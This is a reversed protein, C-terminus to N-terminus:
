NSIIQLIILEDKFLEHFTWNTKIMNEKELNEFRSTQGENEQDIKSIVSFELKQMVM